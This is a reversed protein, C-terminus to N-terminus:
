HFLIDFTISAEIPTGDRLATQYRASEALRRAPRYLKPEQGSTNLRLLRNDPSIVAVVTVRGKLPSKVRTAIGHISPLSTITASPAAKAEGPAAVAM